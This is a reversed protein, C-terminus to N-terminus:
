NLYTPLTNKLAKIGFGLQAVFASFEQGLTLPTADMLHTRGIKVIEDFSKSKKELEVKLSELSPITKNLIVKM